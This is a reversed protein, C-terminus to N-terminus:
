QRARGNTREIYTKLKRAMFLETKEISEFTAGGLHPTIVVNHTAQLRVLDENVYPEDAVVDLGAGALTGSLLHDVLAREDVLEGRATNILIATKKMLALDHGTILPTGGQNYSAHISVVDATQLLTHKDTFRVSSADAVKVGGDVALVTMGFARGYGAVMRGVRGFGIIGLTKGALERGWFDDRNWQGQSTHRAAAPVRRMLSLVLAWTLEATAPLDSLIEREGRLCLVDIGAAKAAEVDIHTLGTTPTAVVRLRSARGFLEADLRHALRAFVADATQIATLLQSRTYPGRVVDLEPGLIREVAETYATPEVVIVREINL